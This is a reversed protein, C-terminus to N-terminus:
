AEGPHNLHNSQLWAKVAVLDFEWENGHNGTKLVPMGSKLWVELQARNIDLVSILHNKGIIKDQWNSKETTPRHSRRKAQRLYNSTKM